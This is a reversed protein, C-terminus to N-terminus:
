AFPRRIFRNAHLWRIKGELVDLSEADPAVLVSRLGCSHRIERRPSDHEHLRLRKRMLGFKVRTAEDLPM